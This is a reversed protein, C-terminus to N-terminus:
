AMSATRFLMTLVYGIRQHCKLPPAMMAGARDGHRLSTRWMAPPGSLLVQPFPRPRDQRQRYELDIRDIAGNLYAIEREDANPVRLACAFNKIQKLM